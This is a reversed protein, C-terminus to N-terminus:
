RPLSASLADQMSATEFWAQFSEDDMIAVFGKPSLLIWEGDKVWWPHGDREFKLTYTYTSAAPDAKNLQATQRLQGHVLETIAYRNEHTLQLAQIGRRAVVNHIM